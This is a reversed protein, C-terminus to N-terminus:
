IWVCPKACSGYVPWETGPLPVLFLQRGDRWERGLGPFEQRLLTKQIQEKFDPHQVRGVLIGILHQFLLM